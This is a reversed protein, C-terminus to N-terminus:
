SKCFIKPIIVFKRSTKHHVKYTNAHYTETVDGNLYSSVTAFMKRCAGDFIVRAASSVSVLVKMIVKLVGGTGFYMLIPYM